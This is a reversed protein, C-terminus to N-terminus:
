KPKIDARTNWGKRSLEYQAEGEEGGPIAGAWPVRVTRVLRLGTKELVRRSALNAAMTSAIVKEYGANCFGWGVLAAAGESALGMGWASRKLRYGLDAVRDDEPWLCFWGVFSATSISRATWVHPETGRPRLFTEGDGSQGGHAAHGGTLFRMVERDEELAIFDDRDEASCPRLTLNPTQLVAL